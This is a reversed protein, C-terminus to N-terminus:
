SLKILDFVKAPTLKVMCSHHSCTAQYCPGCEVKEQLITLHPNPPAHRKPDTPGFLAISPKELASALHLPASDPSIFFSSQEILATLESLSSKSVLSHVPIRMHSLVEREFLIDDPSGTLVIQVKKEHYLSYSLEAIYSARWRKTEWSAGIHIVCFPQTLDLKSEFALERVRTRDHNSIWTELKPNKLSIGLLKLIQFQHQIPPLPIDEAIHNLFLRGGKRGFGYRHPIHAAYAMYHSKWTNQFDISIDFKTLDSKSDYLIHDVYPCHELLPKAHHRTLLTINAIPFHERIHRLSASILVIDGLSSFKIVLIKPRLLEEYLKETSQVMQEKSYQSEVKARAQTVLRATLEKNTLIRQITKSLDEPHRPSCLLGTKGDDIVEQIGGVRTAVVPVGVAQAEIIVRGFAEPHTTPVVLLDLTKLQEPINNQHGLFEVEQSLNLEKALKILEKLYLPDSASGIIKSVFKLNQKKLISLARLLDKLGKIPTIRGIYGITLPSLVNHRASVSAFSKFQFRELDVGRPILSIKSEPVKFDDMMHKKIAHTACIVRDAWGMVRSGWHSRYYGHCTTVWKTKTFFCALYTIWGPVRSRAHVIDIHHQRIFRILKRSMQFITFPNKQHVPWSFHSIGYRDLESVLPGGNSIVAVSHGREKLYKCIDLTGTEVGGEKLSPLIQLINM